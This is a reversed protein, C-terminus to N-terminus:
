RRSRHMRVTDVVDAGAPLAEGAALRTVELVWKRGVNPGRSVPRIAEIRRLTGTDEDRLVDGPVPVESPTPRREYTLTLRAM